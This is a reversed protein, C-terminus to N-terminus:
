IESIRDTVNAVQANPRCDALHRIDVLWEVDAILICDQHLKTEDVSM